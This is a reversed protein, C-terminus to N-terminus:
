SFSKKIRALYKQIITDQLQLLLETTQGFNLIEKIVTRCEPYSAYTGFSFLAVRRVSIPQDKDQLIKNLAHLVGQQIAMGILQDSNRVAANLQTKEDPSSILHILHPICPSLSSYLQNNHFSANGIAFCAFKQTNKDPAACCEILAPIIDWKELDEYFYASHKCLNGILNCMKATITPDPHNLMERWATFMSPTSMFQYYEKSMRALQSVIGLTDILVGNSNKTQLLHGIVGASLGGFDIFQQSFTSNEHVLRSLLGLPLELYEGSLHSLSQITFDVLKYNIMIQLVLPLITDADVKNAFPLYFISVVQTVLNAVAEQGGGLSIPWSQLYHLHTPNLMHLLDAMYHNSLVLNIRESTNRSVVDYIIRTATVIGNPSLENSTNMANLQYFITEWLGSETFEDIMDEEKVIMKQVLYIMHDFCGTQQWGFCTGEIARMHNGGPHTMMKRLCKLTATTAVQEHISGANDGDLLLGSLYFAASSLSGETSRMMHLLRQVSFEPRNWVRETLKPQQLLLGSVIHLITARHISRQVDDSAMEQDLCSLLTDMSPGSAMAIVLQPSSKVAKLMLRYVPLASSMDDSTTNWLIDLVQYSVMNNAVQACVMHGIRSLFAENSPIQHNNPSNNSRGFPFPTTSGEKTFVVASLSAISEKVLEKNQKKSSLDAPINLEISSQYTPSSSEISQNGLLTFFTNILELVGQQLSNHDSEMRLLSTLNPLFTRVAPQKCGEFSLRVVAHFTRIVESDMRLGRHNNFARRKGNLTLVKQKSNSECSILWPLHNIILSPLSDLALIDEKASISDTPATGNTLINYLVRMMGALHIMSEQTDSYSNELGVILRDGETEFNSWYSHFTSPEKERPTMSLTEDEGEYIPPLVKKSLTDGKEESGEKKTRTEGEQYQPMLQPPIKFVFSEKTQRELREAETESVFPHEALHPWGMRQAPDKNLLGRLFTRFHDSINDPFKVADKVILNILSYINNTYFPPVGVFLEYLIVGLSWLDVTHNYPLEQVLEPAMYLPTGKISTLVMTNCSMARAFGFDCLKIKGDSGILINQPKMDRHIIRNSHLYDLARVLQKAISQVVDEPMSRDDELVDFLEGQAYETVVCFESKTEFCDLMLVINEHKLGRLIDIESRLRKIDKDSKGTKRIFKLAVIQGTYKRRGKYVKGFSGEGILEIVIYENMFPQMHM